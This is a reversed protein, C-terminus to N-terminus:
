PAARFTFHITYVYACIQKCMYKMYVSLFTYMYIM